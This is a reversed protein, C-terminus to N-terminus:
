ELAPILSQLLDEPFASCTAALGEGLQSVVAVVEAPHCDLWEIAQCARSWRRMEEEVVAAAGVAAEEQEESM